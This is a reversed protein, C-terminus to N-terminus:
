RVLVCDKALSNDGSSLMGENGKQMWAMAGNAFREGSGSPVRNLDYTAGQFSVQVRDKTMPTVSVMPGNACQYKRAMGAQGAGGVGEQHRRHSSLWSLAGLLLAAGVALPIWRGLGTQPRRPTTPRQGTERVQYRQETRARDDSRDPDANRFQDDNRNAM